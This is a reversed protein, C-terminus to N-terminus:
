KNENYFCMECEAPVKDYRRHIECIIGSKKVLETLRFIEHHLNKPNKIIKNTSLSIENRLETKFNLTGRKDSLYQSVAAPTIKLLEAIEKQKLDKKSLAIALEKRLSPIIYRVEIEQPMLKM